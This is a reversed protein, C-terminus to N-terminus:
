KSLDPEYTWASRGTDLVASCLEPFALAGALLRDLRGNGAAVCELFGRCLEFLAERQTEDVSRSDAGVAQTFFAHLQQVFSAFTGHFSVWVTSRLKGVKLQLANMYKLVDKTENKLRQVVEENCSVRLALRLKLTRTADYLLSHKSEAVRVKSASRM